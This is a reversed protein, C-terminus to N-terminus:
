SLVLYYTHICKADNYYIPVIFLRILLRVITDYTNDFSNLLYYKDYM